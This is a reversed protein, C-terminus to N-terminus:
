ASWAHYERGIRTRVRAHVPGVNYQEVMAFERAVTLPNNLLALCESFPSRSRATVGAGARVGHGRPADLRYATQHTTSAHSARSALQDAIRLEDLYRNYLKAGKKPDYHVKPLHGLPIKRRTTTRDLDAYPM